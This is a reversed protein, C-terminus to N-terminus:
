QYTLTFTADANASGATVPGGTAVYQGYFVLPVSQANAALAYVQSAQGIAIRNREEDLIAVALNTATSDQSLALLTNDVTDGGGNFTVEVGAAAAGCNELTVVFRTPVPSQPTAAFQRSAWTGLDVTQSQSDQSVNCSNALITVRLEMNSLGLDARALASFLLAACLASGCIGAVSVVFPQWRGFRRQLPQGSASAKVRQHSNM